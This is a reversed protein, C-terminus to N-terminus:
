ISKLLKIKMFVLYAFAIAILWTLVILLISIINTKRDEM